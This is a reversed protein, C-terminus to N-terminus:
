KLFGDDSNPVANEDATFDILMKNDKNEEKNVKVEDKNHDDHEQEKKWREFAINFAQSITLAIAEAIKRKATM